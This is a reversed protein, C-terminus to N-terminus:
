PDPLRPEVGRPRVKRGALEVPSRSSCKPTHVLLFSTLIIVSAPSPAPFDQDSCKATLAHSASSGFIKLEIM